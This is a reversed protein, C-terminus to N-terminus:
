EFKLVFRNLLYKYFNRVCAPCIMYEYLGIISLPEITILNSQDTYHTLKPKLRTSVM